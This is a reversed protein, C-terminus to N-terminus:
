PRPQANWWALWSPDSLLLMLGLQTYCQPGRLVVLPGGEISYGYVTIVCVTLLGADAPDTLWSPADTYRGDALQRYDVLTGARTDGPIRVQQVNQIQDPRPRTQATLTSLCGALVTLYIQRRM